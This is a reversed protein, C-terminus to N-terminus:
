IFQSTEPPVATAMQRPPTGMSLRRPLPAAQRSPPATRSIHEDMAALQAPPVAGARSGGAIYCALQPPHNSLEHPSVTPHCQRSPQTTHETAAGYGSAVAVVEQFRSAPSYSHSSTGAFARHWAGDAPMQVVGPPYGAPPDALRGSLHQGSALADMYGRPTHTDFFTISSSSLNSMEPLHPRSSVPPPLTAPQPLAAGSRMLMQARRSAAGRPTLRPSPPAERGFDAEDFTAELSSCRRPRRPRGQSAAPVTQPADAEDGHANNGLAPLQPSAVPRYASSGRRLKSPERLVVEEM